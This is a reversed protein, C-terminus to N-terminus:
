SGRSWGFASISVSPIYRKRHPDHPKLNIM